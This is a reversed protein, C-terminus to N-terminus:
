NNDNMIGAFAWHDPFLVVTNVKTNYPIFMFGKLGTTNLVSQSVVLGKGSKYFRM